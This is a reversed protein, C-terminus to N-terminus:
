ILEVLKTCIFEECSHLADYTAGGIHPTILVNYGEQMAKYLPSQTIDDMETALVDTAIGALKQQKVLSCVFEEDVIRGRSTNLLYKNYSFSAALSNNILNVTDETLHVHLSIIDCGEILEALSNTKDYTEATVYPDYYCVQMDFAAAYKAMLTGTRGMGVIGLKKNKLQYGWFLQRQWNGAKVSAAAAPINRLLSLMLAFCHEATSPITKLFDQYPKLCLIKINHTNCYAVDIHDTGTTASVIVSLNPFAALTAADLYKKFRVIIVSAQQVFTSQEFDDWTVEAYGAKQQLLQKAAPSFNDPEFNIITIM